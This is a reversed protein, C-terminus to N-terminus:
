KIQKLYESPTVGMINKFQRNFHSLNGYGSSYCVQSISKDSKEHFLKCAYGVRINNLYQTFTKGNVKKFFRCFSSKSMNSIKAIEDLSIENQFNHILYELVSNLNGKNTFSAKHYGESCLTQYHKDDALIGLIKMFMVLRDFNSAKKMKLLIGAAAQTTKDSFKIGLKSKSLLANVKSMEPMDYFSTGAFNKKFHIVLSEAHKFNDQNNAKFDDDLLWRHSLNEGMLVLDGPQFPEIHEGIFKIGTGKANYNLELEPHCHWIDLYSASYNHTFGLSSNLHSSRDVQKTIM